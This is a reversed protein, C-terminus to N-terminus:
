PIQASVSTEPRLAPSRISRTKIESARRQRTQPSLNLNGGVRECRMGPAPDKYAIKLAAM